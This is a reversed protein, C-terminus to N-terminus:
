LGLLETLARVRDPVVALEQTPRGEAKGDPLWRVM